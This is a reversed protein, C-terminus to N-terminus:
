RTAEQTLTSFAEALGARLVELDRVEQDSALLRRVVAEANRVTLHVRGGSESASEVGPWRRLDEASLRTSCVIRKQRVLSRVESVPGDAVLRGNALVAVRDALADAEELYHTTLVLATGADRLARVTKWVCARAEVDLGVTPEDLFILDPRGCIAMGFQVLRKQGGSLKGYPRAALPAIGTLGLIEDLEMSRPYYSRVLDLHERVKLEPPLMVDQMMVGVRRRVALGPREGFLQVSGSDPRELGLLLAITTSKGAGNPGLVTLLEGRGIELTLGELAVVTGFRKAATRLRAVVPRSM